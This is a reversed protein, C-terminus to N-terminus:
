NNKLAKPHCRGYAEKIKTVTNHTYIQTANLSTHGLLEKIAYIDAGAEALHTAFSHRLVHPSKKSVSTQISLKTSIVNHILKPYAKDGGNTSFLFDHREGVLESRKPLYRLIDKKLENGFPIIREKQGKGLVKIHQSVLNIDALKLNILESRRIGTEYLLRIMLLDRYQFPNDTELEMSNSLFSLDTAKFVTPLRRKLKPSVIKRMPNQLLVGERKLFKFYSKLCSIKRVISSPDLGNGNLSVLWSRIHFHNSEEIVELNFDNLLYYSFQSLDSQYALITHDSFRKEYKLFNLYDSVM